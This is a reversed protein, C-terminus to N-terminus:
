CDGITVPQDCRHDRGEDRHYLLEGITEAIMKRLLGVDKTTRRGWEGDRPGRAKLGKKKGEEERGGCRAM